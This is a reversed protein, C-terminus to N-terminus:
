SIESWMQTFADRYQRVLRPEHTILFNERNSTDAARTWNYSGCLLCSDDFVAFKHHFHHESHDTHVDLGSQRLHDVDSGRDWSKEDDSLIRVRVGRRHAAILAATVRDDTITFVAADLTERTSSILGCLTEVMPADPGFLARSNPLPKRTQPELVKVAAHLWDILDRDRKDLLRGRIHGFLESVLWSRDNATMTMDAIVADLAQKETRSLRKDDLTQILHVLLEQRSM